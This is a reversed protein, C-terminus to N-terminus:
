LVMETVDVVAFLSSQIISLCLHKWTDRTMECSVNIEIQVPIEPTCHHLCLALSFLILIRIGSVGTLKVSPFLDAFM